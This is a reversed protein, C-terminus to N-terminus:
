ADQIQRCNRSNLRHRKGCTAYSLWPIRSSLRSGCMVRVNKNATAEGIRVCAVNADRFASLVDDDCGENAQIVLGLEEAFLVRVAGVSHTDSITVNVGMNGAFAM